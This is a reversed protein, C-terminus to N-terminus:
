AAEGFISYNDAYTGVWLRLKDDIDVSGFNNRHGVGIGPRGPLGKIGVVNHEDTLIKRGDFNKWLNVDFMKQIGTDCLAKMEALARGHCVTSSLSAHIKGKLVRWKRTTVNYYRSDREGILEYDRAFEISRTVHNPLYVDDDELNILLADDPVVFLGSQLCKVHTNQGRRWRWPPRVPIVHINSRVTPIRTRPDCDDVIIWTMDGQYNQANLYEGLLALGEPRHGTPTLAFVNM